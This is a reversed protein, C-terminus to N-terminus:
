NNFIKKGKFILNTFIVLLYRKGGTIPLGSHDIKGCSILMEGQDLKNVLGDEFMTGGDRYSKKDSLMINISIFSGDKHFDLSKQSNNCYKVIFADKISFIADNKNLNYFDRIKDFISNIHFQLYNNLIDIDKIPIDTTEYREHRNIQWKNNDTIYKEINNIFWNCTSSTFINNREIFRQLFRNNISLKESEVENIDLQLKENYYDGKNLSYIEYITKEHILIDNIYDKSKNFIIERLKYAERKNKKYFLSNYFVDNFIENNRIKIHENKNKEINIIKENNIDFLEDNDEESYPFYLFNNIRKNWVNFVLIHRDSRMNELEDFINVVGHSKTGDFTIQINKKPFSLYLKNQTDFKKYKYTDYNMESILTSDFGDSLYTICSFLPGSFIGYSNYLNEDKDFHFNCIESNDKKCWYEVIHEDKNFEINMRSLHFIASDYVIKELINLKDRYNDLIFLPLKNDYSRIYNNEVDIYLSAINDIDCESNIKWSELKM